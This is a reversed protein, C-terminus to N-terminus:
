GHRWPWVVRVGTGFKKQVLGLSKVARKNMRQSTAFSAMRTMETGADQQRRERIMM